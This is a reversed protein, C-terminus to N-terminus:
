CTAKVCVKVIHSSHELQVRGQVMLYLQLYKWLNLPFISCSKLHIRMSQYYSWCRNKAATMIDKIWINGAQSKDKVSYIYVEMWM